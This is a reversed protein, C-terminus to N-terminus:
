PGFIGQRYQELWLPWYYEHSALSEPDISRMRTELEDYIGQAEEAPTHVADQVTDWFVRELRALQMVSSCVFMPDDEDPSLAVVAGGREEDLCVYMADDRAVLVFRHGGGMRRGADEASAFQLSWGTDVPLGVRRLYDLAAAPIRLGQLTSDPWTRTQM